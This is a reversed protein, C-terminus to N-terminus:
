DKPETISLAGARTWKATHGQTDAVRNCRNNVCQAFIAQAAKKVEADAQRLKDRAAVYDAVINAASVYLCDYSGLLQQVAAKNPEEAIVPLPPFKTAVNAFFRAECVDYLALLRDNRPNPIINIDKEVADFWRYFARKSLHEYMKAVAGRMNESNDKMCIQLIYGMQRGAAAQQLNNQVIWSLKPGNDKASARRTKIEIIANDPLVIDNITGGCGDLADLSCIRTPTLYVPSRPAVAFSHKVWSEVAKGFMDDWISITPIEINNVIRNYIAYASAYPLEGACPVDTRVDEPQWGVALLEADTAYHRILAYAESTGVRGHRAKLWAISGQKLNTETM